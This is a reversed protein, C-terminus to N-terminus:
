FFRPSKQKRVLLRLDYLFFVEHSGSNYRGYNLLTHDYSYGLRLNRNIVFNMIASVSENLRWGVGLEFKENWLMNATFDISIPAGSTGRLMISPRVKFATNIDFVHGSTLYFHMNESAGSVYGDTKEFHRSEIFNPMSLGIYFKDDYYFLGAGFNPYVENLIDRDVLPDDEEPYSLSLFDINQFTAGVKLGFALRGIDSTKITYSYDAYLHEEKVPGIRDSLITLGLGMTKNIPSNISASITQPAGDLGTWQSRAFVSASLNGHSGAYAPNIYSLNYMYQTFRAEQQSYGITSTFVIISLILIKIKM